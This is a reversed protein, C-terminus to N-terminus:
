KRKERAPNLAIELGDLLAKFFIIRLANGNKRYTLLGVGRKLRHM